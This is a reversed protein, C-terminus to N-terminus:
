RVGRSERALSCPCNISMMHLCTCEQTFSPLSLYCIFCNGTSGNELHFLPHSHHFLCLFASEYSVTCDGTFAASKLLFFPFLLIFITHYMLLRDFSQMALHQHWPYSCSM